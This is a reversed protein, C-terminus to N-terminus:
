GCAARDLEPEAPAKAAPFRDALKWLAELTEDINRRLQAPNLTAYLKALSERQAEDLVNAALLRQYPTQARLPGALLPLLLAPLCRLVARATRTM